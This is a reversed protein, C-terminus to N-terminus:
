SLASGYRPGSVISSVTISTFSFYVGLEGPTDLGKWTLSQILCRTCSPKISEYSIRGTSNYMGFRSELNCVPKCLLGRAANSPSHRTSDGRVRSIFSKVESPGASMIRASTVALIRFQERGLELNRANSTNRARAQWRVSSAFISRITGYMTSRSWSSAAVTRDAARRVKICTTPKQGNERRTTNGQRVM